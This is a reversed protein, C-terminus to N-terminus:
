GGKGSITVQVVWFSTAHAVPTQLVVRTWLSHITWPLIIGHVQANVGLGAEVLPAVPALAGGGGGIAAWYTTASPLPSPWVNNNASPYPSLEVWCWLNGPAGAVPVIETALIQVEKEQLYETYCEVSTHELIDAITETSAMTGTGAAYTTPLILSPTQVILM